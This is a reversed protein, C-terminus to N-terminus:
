RVKPEHRLVEANDIVEKLFFDFKACECILAYLHAPKSKLSLDNSYVRSKLSGRLETSCLVTVADYYLSM